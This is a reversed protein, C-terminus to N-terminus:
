EPCGPGGERLRDQLHAPPSLSTDKWRFKSHRVDDRRIFWDWVGESEGVKM